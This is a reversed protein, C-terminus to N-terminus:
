KAPEIPLGATKWADYGGLLAAANTINQNIPPPSSISDKIFSRKIDASIRSHRLEASIPTHPRGPCRDAAELVATTVTGPQRQQHDRREGLPVEDVVHHYRASSRGWPYRGSSQLHRAHSPTRRQRAAATHMDCPSKACAATEPQPTPM